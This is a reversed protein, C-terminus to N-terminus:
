DLLYQNEKEDKKLIQFSNKIFFEKAQFNKLLVETKIRLSEKKAMDVAKKLLLKGIGKRRWKKDVLLHKIWLINGDKKILLFGVLQNGYYAGHYLFM